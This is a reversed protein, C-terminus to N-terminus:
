MFHAHVIKILREGVFHGDTQGAPNFFNIRRDAKAFYASFRLSEM